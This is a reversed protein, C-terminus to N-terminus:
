CNNSILDILKGFLAMRDLEIKFRVISLIEIIFDEYGGHEVQNFVVRGLLMLILCCVETLSPKWVNFACKLKMLKLHNKTRFLPFLNVLSVRDTFHHIINSPPAKMALALMISPTSKSTIEMKQFSQLKKFSGVTKAFDLIMTSVLEAMESQSITSLLRICTQFSSILQQTAKLMKMFNTDNEVDPSLLLENSNNIMSSNKLLPELKPKEFLHMFFDVCNCCVVTAKNTETKTVEDIPISCILCQM